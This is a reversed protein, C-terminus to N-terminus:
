RPTIVFWHTGQTNELSLRSWGSEFIDDTSATRDQPSRARIGPTIVRRGTTRIRVSGHVPESLVTGDHAFETRAVATVLIRSSRALPKDDLAIASVTASPTEIELELDSLRITRGGLSGSAAQMRPTDIRLLGAAWNRDIEGTDSTVSEGDGPLLDLDLDEVTRSGIPAPGPHDWDLAPHAPLVLVMRSREPATRLATATKPSLPAGWLQELSPSLAITNKAPAIDGRRYMLAATPGLALLAPDVRQEWKTRTLPGMALPTYGYCYGMLADWGQLSAIAAVWLPATFRDAHPRPVSWESVTLPKGAVQAAAIYHIWNSTSHPDTSLAGEEGYSHVDVVDGFALAPVSWLNELGWFNTTAIPAKAGLARIHEIARSDWRHQLESLLLRGESSGGLRRAKAEPLELDTVVARGLKEL